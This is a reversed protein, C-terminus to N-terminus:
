KNLKNLVFDIEKPSYRLKKGQNKITDSTVYVIKSIHKWVKDSLKNHFEWIMMVLIPIRNDSMLAVAIENRDFDLIIKEVDKVPLKSMGKAVNKVFAKTSVMRQADGFDKKMKGWKILGSGADTLDLYKHYKVFDDMTKLTITPTVKINAVKEVIKFSNKSLFIAQTPESPHIIGQGSKDGFGSYGLDRFIKNWVVISKRAIETDADIIRINNGETLKSAIIMTIYWFIGGPNKVRAFTKAHDIITDLTDTRDTFYKFIDKQFGLGEPDSKSLLRVFSSNGLRIRKKNHNATYKELEYNISRVFDDYDNEDKIANIIIKSIDKYPILFETGGFKEVLARWYLDAIKTATRTLKAIGGGIEEAFMDNLKAMDRDFDASTYDTYLDKIFKGKSQKLVWIYPNNGAFPVQIQKGVHDFNKWMEKLPYTYIALPTNFKSKPNIGVKDVNTFSIYINEDDKYKSLAEYASIKPNQEPNRRKEILYSAFSKM